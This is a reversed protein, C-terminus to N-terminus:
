VMWISGSSSLASSWSASPSSYTFMGATQGVAVPLSFMCTLGRALMGGGGRRRKAGGGMRDSELASKSWLTPHTDWLTSRGPEQMERALRQVNM